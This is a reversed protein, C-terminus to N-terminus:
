RRLTIEYRITNGQHPQDGKPPPAYLKAVGDKVVYQFAEGSIPDNPAPVEKIDALTAPLKGNNLAAHMRIAEIVRLVAIKRDVRAGAFHVKQMAPIMLVMLAGTLDGEPNARLKKIKAETRTTGEVAESYPLTLWVFAQDRLDKYHIMGDLLVVQAAPMADIEKQTKGAALLSKKANPYQLTVYAATLVKNKLAPLRLAAEEDAFLNMLNVTWQDFVRQAEEVTMPGKDIDKLMPLTGDLARVEGELPKRLDILPRPLYTLAWYLNPAGPQQIILDLEGAFISVVAMGVLSQILSPGMGVHRGMTVGVQVDHLAENLKGEAIHLHCRMKLMRALERMKQIEPLLVGIGDSDLRRELDWDCHDRKVALDIERFVQRYSDVYGRLEEIPIENLPKAIMEEIKLDYEAVKKPDPLRRESLLMMARHYSVAANGPVQERFNPLLEYRLAPVPSKAPSLVLKIVPIEPPPPNGSTEKPAPAKGVDKKPEAAMSRSSLALVCVALVGALLESLRHNM